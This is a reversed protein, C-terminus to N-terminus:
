WPGVRVPAGYTGSLLEQRITSLDSPRNNQQQGQSQGGMWGLIASLENEAEQMRGQSQQNHKSLKQDWGGYQLQMGGARKAAERLVLTWAKSIEEYADQKHLNNQFNDWNPLRHIINTAGDLFALSQAAQPENPPLFHPTFDNLADLLAMLPQRVRNYAYDSTSSGGFPFSAQLISEYKKLVNLASSVSPRPATHVVESGISPHHDCITKFVGRLEDADLTELLRSLALPRGAPGSKARKITRQLPLPQSSIAPSGSPSASMRDEPRPDDDEAKRKRSQSINTHFSVIIM